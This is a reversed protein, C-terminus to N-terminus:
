SEGKGSGGARRNRVETRQQLNGASKGQPQPAGEPWFVM